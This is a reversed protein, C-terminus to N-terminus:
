SEVSEPRLRVRDGAELGDLVEVADAVRRGLRPQVWSAGYPGDRLVAPRGSRSTVAELPVVLRDPSRELTLEGVFRMGPRMRETDVRDLRLEIRMIRRPDRWSRQEVARHIEVVSASFERDPYADLRLAAEQGVRVGGADVEDVEAVARLEALDPLQAVAEAWWVSDGVKKKESRWNSKYVLVGSRPARVTLRGLDRELDSVRTAVFDRQRRLGQLEIDERRQLRELAEEYHRVEEESLARDLRALQLEQSAVVEAPVDSQLQARRARGRAEVLQLMAREREVALDSRQKELNKEATDLDARAQILKQELQSPDFGVAPDGARLNSGEPALFAITFTHMDRIQPPRLDASSTAELEGSVTVTRELDRREVVTWEGDASSRDAIWFGGGGVLLAAGLGLGLARRRRFWPRASAGNGSATV